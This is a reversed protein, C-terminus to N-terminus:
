YVGFAPTLEKPLQTSPLTMGRDMFILVFLVSFRMCFAAVEVDSLM